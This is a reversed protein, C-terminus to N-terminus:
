VNRKSVHLQQHLFGAMDRPKRTKKSVAVAMPYCNMPLPPPNSGFSRCSPSNQEPTIHYSKKDSQSNDVDMNEDHRGELSSGTTNNSTMSSSCMQPICVPGRKFRGRQSFVAGGSPKLGHFLPPPPPPPRRYSGKVTGGRCSRLMGSTNSTMPRNKYMPNEGTFCTQPQRLFDKRDSNEQNSALQRPRKFESCDQTNLLNRKQASEDDRSYNGERKNPSVGSYVREGNLHFTDDHNLRKIKPPSQDVVVNTVTPRFVSRTNLVPHSWHNRFHPGRQLEREPQKHTTQYQQLQLSNALNEQNKKERNFNCTPKGQFEQENRSSDYTHVLAIEKNHPPACRRVEQSMPQFQQEGNSKSRNLQYTPSSHEPDIYKQCHSQMQKQHGSVYDIRPCQVDPLIPLPLKKSLYYCETDDEMDEGRREREPAPKPQVIYSIPWPMQRCLSNRGRLFLTHFYSGRDPGRKIEKFGWAGVQWLFYDCTGGCQPFHQLLTDRSLADWRLVRWSRGHPLWELAVGAMDSSSLMEHLQTPFHHASNGGHEEVSSSSLDAHTESNNVSSNSMPSVYCPANHEQKIQMGGSTTRCHSRSTVSNNESADYTRPLSAGLQRGMTNLSPKESRNSSLELTSNACEGSVNSIAPAHSGTSSTMSTSTTPSVSNRLGKRQVSTFESKRVNDNTGSHNEGIKINRKEVNENEFVGGASLLLAAAAEKEESDDNETSRASVSNSSRLNSDVRKELYEHKIALPYQVYGKGINANNNEFDKVKDVTAHVVGFGVTHKNKELADIVMMQHTSTM